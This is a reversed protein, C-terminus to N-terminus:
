RARHNWATCERLGGWAREMEVRFMYTVGFSIYGWIGLVGLLSGLRLGLEIVRRVVKSIGAVLYM